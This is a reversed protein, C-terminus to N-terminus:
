THVIRVGTAAIGCRELGAVEAPAFTYRGAFALSITLQGPSISLRGFPWTAQLPGIRAAGTFSLSENMSSNIPHRGCRILRVGYLASGRGATGAGVGSCLITPSLASKGAVSVSGAM